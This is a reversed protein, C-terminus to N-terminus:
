PRLAKYLSLVVLFTGSDITSEEETFSGDDHVLLVSREDIHKDHFENYAIAYAGTQIDDSDYIGLGARRSKLDTCLLQGKDDWWILDVTGAYGHKLSYLVTETEEVVPQRAMWWGAVAHLYAGDTDPTWPKHWQKTALEHAAGTGAKQFTKALHELFDHAATGREAADFKVDDPTLRNEKFWDKADQEDDFTDLFDEVELTGERIMTALGVIVDRTHGYAWQVLFPKALTAGIITTVSPLRITVDRRYRETTMDKLVFTYFGRSGAARAM